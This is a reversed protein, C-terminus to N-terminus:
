IRNRRRRHLSLLGGGLLVVFLSAPEPAHHANGLVAAGQGLEAYGPTYLIGSILSDKGVETGEGLAYVDAELTNGQGFDAWGGIRMDISVLDPNSLVSVDKGFSLGNEVNLFTMGESDALIRSNQGLNLSDFNFEGPGNLHITVNKGFDLSGYDGADLYVDSGDDYWHYDSVSSSPEQFSAPTYTWEDIAPKSALDYFDGDVTANNHKWYGEHHYVDGHVAANRNIDLWGGASVDGNVTMNQAIGVYGRARIRGTTVNKSFSIGQGSDISGASSNQGMWLGDAAIVRGTISSNKDIDIYDGGFVGGSVSTNQGLGIYDYSGINGAISANRGIQLSDGAFVSMERGVLATTDAWTTSITTLGAIWTLLFVTFTTRSHSM